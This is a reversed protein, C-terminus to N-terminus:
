VRDYDNVNLVCFGVEKKKKTKTIKKKKKNKNKKFVKIYKKM